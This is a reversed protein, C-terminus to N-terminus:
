RVQWACVVRTAPREKWDHVVGDVVALAHGKVHVVWSGRGFRRVFEPLTMRPKGTTRMLDPISMVIMTAEPFMDSMVAETVKHPTGQNELRGHKEFIAKASEYDIGAAAVLARLSCDKDEGLPSSYTDKDFRM